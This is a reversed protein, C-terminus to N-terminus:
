LSYEYKIANTTIPKYFIKKFGHKPQTKTANVGNQGAPTV